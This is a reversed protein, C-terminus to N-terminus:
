LTGYLEPLKGWDYLEYEYPVVIRIAIITCHVNVAALLTGFKTEDSLYENHKCTSINIINNFTFISGQQVPLASWLFQATVLLATCSYSTAASQYSSMTPAWAKHLWENAVSVFLRVQAALLCVVAWIRRMSKRGWDEVLDAAVLKGDQQLCSASNAQTILCYAIAVQELNYHVPHADFRCSRM